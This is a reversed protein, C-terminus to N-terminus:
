GLASTPRSEVGPGAPGHGEGLLWHTQMSGKGKVSIIGRSETVYGYGQLLLWTAESIHVRGSESTTQMRAATNVTDGFLCYRPVKIGVVGIRVQLHGGTPLSIQSACQLLGLAVDAVHRAHLEDAEPAGGVAMYVQGVTEVKYVGHQDMLKDFGSFAANMTTVAKMCADRDGQNLGALECFLVSVSPFAQLDIM